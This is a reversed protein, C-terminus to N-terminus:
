HMMFNMVYIYLKEGVPVPPAWCVRVLTQVQKRNKILIKNQVNLLLKRPCETM